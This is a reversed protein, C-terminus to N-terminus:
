GITCSLRRAELDITSPGLDGQGGLLDMGILLMPAENEIIALNHLHLDLSGVQLQVQCTGTFEVLQGNVSHADGVRGGTTPGIQCRGLLGTTIASVHAGTDVLAKVKGVRGGNLLAVEATPQGRLYYALALTPHEKM